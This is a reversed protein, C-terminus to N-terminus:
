GTSAAALVGSDEALGKADVGSENSMLGSLGAITIGALMSGQPLYHDVIVHAIFTVESGLSRRSVSSSCRCQFLSLLSTLVPIPSVCTTHVLGLAPHLIFSSLLLGRCNNSSYKNQISTM